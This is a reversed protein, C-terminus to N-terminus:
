KKNAVKQAEQASVHADLADMATEWDDVTELVPETFEEKPAEVPVVKPAVAKPKPPPKPGSPKPTKNVVDKEPKNQKVRTEKIHEYYADDDAYERADIEEDVLKSKANKSMKYTNLLLAKSHRTTPIKM